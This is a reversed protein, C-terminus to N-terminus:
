GIEDDESVEESVEESKDDDTAESGDSDTEDEDDYTEELVSGDKLVKIKKLGFAKHLFFSCILVRLAANFFLEFGLLGYLFDPVTNYFLPTFLWVAILFLTISFNKISLLISNIITKKLTNEFTALLAFGYLFVQVVLFVMIWVPYQLFSYDPNFLDERFYIIYLEVGFLTGLVLVILWLLTGKKFSDKFERFYTTYVEPDEGSVIKICVKYLACLSPGITIIPLCTFLFLINVWFINFINSLVRM